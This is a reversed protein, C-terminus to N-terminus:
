FQQRLMYHHNPNQQVKLIDKSLTHLIMYRPINHHHKCSPCCYNNFGKHTGNPLPNKPTQYELLDQIVTLVTHSIGLNCIQSKKSALINKVEDITYNM